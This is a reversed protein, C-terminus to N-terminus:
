RLVSDATALVHEVLDGSSLETIALWGWFGIHGIVILWFVIQFGPKRTKHRFLRQAPIAGPWGGLFGIWHLTAESTRWGGSRARRKDVAYAIFALLSMGLYVFLAPRYDEMLYLGVLFGAPVLAAM